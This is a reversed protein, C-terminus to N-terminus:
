MEERHSASIFIGHGHCHGHCRMHTCFTDAMMRAFDAAAGQQYDCPTNLLPKQVFFWGRVSRM